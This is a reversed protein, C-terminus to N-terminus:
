SREACLSPLPLPLSCRTCHCMIAAQTSGSTACQLKNIKQTAVALRVALDQQKLLLWYDCLCLGMRNLLEPQSLFFADATSGHGHGSLLCYIISLRSLTRNWIGCGVHLSSM